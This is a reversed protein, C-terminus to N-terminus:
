KSALIRPSIDEGKWYEAWLKLVLPYPNARTATRLFDRPDSGYTFGVFVQNAWPQWKSVQLLSALMDTCFGEFDADDGTLTGSDVLRKLTEKVGLVEPFDGYEWGDDPNAWRLWTALKEQNDYREHEWGLYRYGRAVYHAAVKRLGAETAIAYGLYEVCQGSVLALAYPRDASRQRM